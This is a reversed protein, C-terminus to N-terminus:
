LYFEPNLYEGDKQLEFHLHPGTVNGTSGVLAITQGKEVTDGFAVDLRSCHAYLTTIGNGHDIIVTQGYGSFEQAAIVTGSAFAAIPDGSYVSFDTGYHFRVDGHIPHLRYGFVSTVSASVPPQCDLELVVAETCVSDPLAHGEFAAQAELFVALQEQLQAGADLVPDSSPLPAEVPAAEGHPISEFSSIGEESVESELSPLLEEPLFGSLNARVMADLEFGEAGLGEAAPSPSPSIDGSVETLRNDEGALKLGLAAANEATEWRSYSQPVMAARIRVAAQPSALKLVTAALLIVAAALARIKM